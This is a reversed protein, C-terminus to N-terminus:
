KGNRMVKKKERSLRVTLMNSIIDIKSYVINLYQPLDRQM